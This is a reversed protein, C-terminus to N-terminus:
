ELTNNSNGERFRLSSVQEGWRGHYRLVYLGNRVDVVYILGRDIVPYSWMEIPNGGLGPDEVDVHALPEPRLEALQFPHAADSIDIAELGGAYWTVLALDHTVTANHATFATHAPVSACMSPDNEPLKYEGVVFTNAPDSIDVTRVHGWPCGAGYPSPYIEETVVLLPRGDALVASHPGMVAGKWLLPAGLMVPPNQTLDALALGGLQHSVYAVTGDPSVGVSHLIDDGTNGLGPDWALVRTRTTVDVIELQPGAGPVTLVARDGDIFFEHPSRSGRLPETVDYRGVLQPARPDTIDFFSLNEPMRRAGTCGHLDPSCALNLVVLLHQDPVVRLERSSMGPQAENPAGIEGVVEPDEPHSIDVILIPQNDIRSGVYVTDGAIALASNMGRAGLDSHGVIEFSGSPALNDGCAALVLLALWKM